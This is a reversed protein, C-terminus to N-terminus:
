ADRPKLVHVPDPVLGLGPLTRPRGWQSAMARAIGPFTLSRRKWRDPNAAGSSYWKPLVKGAKTRQREGKGVVRDPVLKPLNKLWLCTTKVAADGFMWPHVTQDPPRIRTSVVGKPNEVAIRPVPANLLALFFHLAEEQERVKGAWWRAGSNALHTCPPHAVMLDWGDRLVDRVDGRIHHESGDLTPLLDCSWADHGVARFASRVTGSFECAVLVRM